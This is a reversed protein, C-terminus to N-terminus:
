CTHVPHPEVTLLPVGSSCWLPEPANTSWMGDAGVATDGCVEKKHMGDHDEEEIAVPTVASM